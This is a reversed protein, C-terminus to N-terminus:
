ARKQRTPLGALRLEALAEGSDPNCLLAQEFARQADAARGMRTFVRGLYLHSSALRPSLEIGHQLRKVADAQVVADDPSELYLAFGLHAHFEGEEPYLEVAERFLAAAKAYSGAHLATEGKRFRGEAALIKGLEDSVGTKQGQDIRSAYAHRKKDDSLTQFAAELQHAIQEALARADAPVNGRLKDPHVERVLAHYARQIEDSHASKSVGLMEFFTQRRMARAREMLKARIEDAPVGELSPRPPYSGSRSTSVATPSSAFVNSDGRKKLPPPKQAGLNLATPSSPAEAPFVDLADKKKAARQMPQITETALLTYVLQKGHLRSLGSKDIVDRMTRRGDVLALLRREDAELALDQFRYGPDPHPGVFSEIFPELLDDLQGESFRRRVGEYVITALSMDLHVTQTPIEIKANFQYDGDPWSFIDFLKQELQLQLAFVLNHPSIAGMEILVTGQQRSPSGDAKEKMLNLSRECEEDSIMKERVLVRGLCESLLNSKVFIPYGEKLYVIKKTRERRLLLAGTAKWRYLQALVEPFRKHKLNGKATRTGSFSNEAREVEKQELRTDFDALPDEGLDNSRKQAAKPASANARPYDAGLAQRLAEVLAVIEFPKDFYASVQLRDRADKKHKSARYIGSIAIVPVDDGGPMRRLEEILEFGGLSPLLIDTIVVDPLRRKLARLGWEGDKECMVQFGELELTDRLLSQMGKDDEVVLATKVAM